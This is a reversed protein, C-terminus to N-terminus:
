MGSRAERGGLAPLGRRGILRRSLFCALKKAAERRRGEPERLASFFVPPPGASIITRRAGGLDGIAPTAGGM